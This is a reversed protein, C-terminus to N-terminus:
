RLCDLCEEGIHGPAPVRPRRRRRSRVLQAAIQLRGLRAESQMDSTDLLQYFDTAALPHRESPVVVPSGAAAAPAWHTVTPAVVCRGLGFRRILKDELAICEAPVGPPGTFIKTGRLKNLTDSRRLRTL